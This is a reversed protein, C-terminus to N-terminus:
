TKTITQETKKKKQCYIIQKKRWSTLLNAQFKINLGARACYIFPRGSISALFEQLPLIIHLLIVQRKSNAFFIILIFFSMKHSLTQTPLM